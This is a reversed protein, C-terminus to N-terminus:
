VGQNQTAIRPQTIAAAIKAIAPSPDTIECPYVSGAGSRPRSAVSAVSRIENVTSKSGIPDPPRSILTAIYMRENLVGM